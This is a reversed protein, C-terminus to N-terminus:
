HPAWTLLVKPKNVRSNEKITVLDTLAQLPHAISSEM